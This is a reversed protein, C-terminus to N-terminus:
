NSFELGSRVVLIASGTRGEMGLLSWTGGFLFPKVRATFSLMEVEVEVEVVELSDRAVVVHAERKRDM